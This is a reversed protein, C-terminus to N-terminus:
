WRVIRAGTSLTYSHMNTCERDKLVEGSIESRVRYREVCPSEVSAWDAGDANRFMGVKRLSNEQTARSDRATARSVDDSRPKSTVPFCSSCVMMM